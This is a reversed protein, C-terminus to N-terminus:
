AAAEQLEQQVRPSEELLKWTIYSISRDESRALKEIAARIEPTVETAIFESRGRTNTENREAM